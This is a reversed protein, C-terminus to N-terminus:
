NIAELGDLLFPMWESVTPHVLVVKRYEQYSIDSQMLTALMNIIEDGGPGLVAAGLIKDSQADVLLKAFGRTESMEKARSIKSMPRVSRLIKHGHALAEQESLGVRGLPPDSFLAYITSRDSLKRQGGFLHDLVIEADNVATHTFAGQGNVDGLAFVGNVPTRCHEDVTLYGGEELSLAGAEVGLSGTNPRRGVAVLLHSAEIQETKKGKKVQAVLGGDFSEFAKTEASLHINIGEEELFEQIAQAIDPDEHPLLQKNRQIITVEAGFRRFVQGMEVGIYGGGLILLHEPLASLDLLRRSDLWPLGDIGKIPPVAPQTGVNLYIQEATYKAGGVSLVKKDVFRAHGRILEVQDNKEMWETLGDRSAHRIKDMRDKVRTYDLRLDKLHFGFEAGRKAQNFARASAVLAKTPTCGYNVCSGGVSSKEIVAIKGEEELLRKLLTATAQGTGVIIHDFHKM